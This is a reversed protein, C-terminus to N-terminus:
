VCFDHLLFEDEPNQITICGNLSQLKEAIVTTFILQSLTSKLNLNDGERTEFCVQGSCAQVAEFFAPIKIDPKLKM